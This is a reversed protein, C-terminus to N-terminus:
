RGAENNEKLKERGLEYGQELAARNVPIMQPRKKGLKQEVIRQASEIDVIGTYGLYAGLMVLNQAKASGLHIAIDTAPIAVVQVDERSGTGRVVSSNLFCSGGPCVKSEFKSLAADNFAIFDDVSQPIPAGVTDDSIVVFCNATGGRQEAGYSPFFTVGKKDMEMASYCLVQGALMVGQGGFGSIMIRKKM